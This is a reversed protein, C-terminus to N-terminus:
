DGISSRVDIKTIPVAYGSSSGHRTVCAMSLKHYGAGFTASPITMTKIQNFLSALTYFDVTNVFIGDITVELIGSAAFTVGLFYMTAGDTLDMVFSNTFVNGQTTSYRYTNFQQSNHIQTTPTGFACISEDHWMTARRAPSVAADGAAALAANATTQAADAASQAADVAVQLDDILASQDLPALDFWDLWIYYGAFPKIQVMTGVQQVKFFTAPINNNFTLM